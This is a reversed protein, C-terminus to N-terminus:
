HFGEWLQRREWEPSNLSDSSNFGYRVAAIDLLVLLILLFYLSLM